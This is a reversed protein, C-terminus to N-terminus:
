SGSGSDGVDTVVRDSDVEPSRERLNELAREISQGDLSESADAGGADPNVTQVATNHRVASGFDDSLNRTKARDSACASLGILLFFVITTSHM